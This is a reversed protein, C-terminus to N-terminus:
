QSDTEADPLEGTRAIQATLLGVFVLAVVGGGVVFVETGGTAEGYLLVLLGAVVGLVVVAVFSAGQEM